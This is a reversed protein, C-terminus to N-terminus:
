KRLGLRKITKTYLDVNTKKLYKLFRRRDEVMQLLGRKSSYDKKNTKMHVQMVEIRKSLLAVQVVASGRDNESLQFDKIIKAKEEKTFM